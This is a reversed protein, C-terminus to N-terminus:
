EDAAVPGAAHPFLGLSPVCPGRSEPGTALQVGVVVALMTWRDAPGFEPTAVDRLHFLLPFGDRGESSPDRAPLKKAGHQTWTGWGAGQGFLNGDTSLEIRYSCATSPAVRAKEIREACEYVAATYLMADLPDLRMVVRFAGEPNPVLFRDVGRPILKALDCEELHERISTWDACIAKYEFPV